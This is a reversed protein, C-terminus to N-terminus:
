NHSPWVIFEWLDHGFGVYSVILYGEQNKQKFNLSWVKWMQRFIEQFLNQCGVSFCVGGKKKGRKCTLM